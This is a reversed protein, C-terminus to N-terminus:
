EEAFFRKRAAEDLPVVEPGGQLNDPMRLPDQAILPFARARREDAEPGVGYFFQTLWDEVTHTMMFSEHHARAYANGAVDWDDTELLKDRLVRVDRLTFSLGQGWAPDSHGAADGILAVGNDYPHEVWTAAGKFTALPGSYRASKLLTADVGAQACGELFAPLDKEGSHGPGDEVRTVLYLRARKDGQPFVPSGLGLSPNVFFHATDVALPCDEMLIGGIQLQDPERQVDFAGWKRVM